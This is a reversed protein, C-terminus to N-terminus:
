THEVYKKWLEPTFHKVADRFLIEVDKLKYTTNREKKYDKLWAWVVKIPNYECHYPPLRLVKFGRKEAEKDLVYAPHRPKIKKVLKFLELKIM